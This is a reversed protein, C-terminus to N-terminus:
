YPSVQGVRTLRSSPIGWSYNYTHRVTPALPVAMPVGYKETGYIAGDRGDFHYPDVPYVMNYHGFPPCGKGGCGTPNFYGFKCAFWDGIRRDGRCTGCRCDRGHYPMGLKCANCDDCRHAGHHKCERCHHHRVKFGFKNKWVGNDCIYDPHDGFLKCEHGKFCGKKCGLGCDDDDCGTPTCGNDTCAETPCSEDTCAQETCAQETAAVEAIEPYPADEASADEDASQGRIVTQSLDSIRVVGRKGPEGAFSMSCLLGLTLLSSLLSRLAPKRWTASRTMPKM